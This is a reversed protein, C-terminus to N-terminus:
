CKKKKATENQKAEDGAECVPSPPLGISEKKVGLVISEM